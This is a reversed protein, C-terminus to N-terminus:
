KEELVKYLNKEEYAIRKALIDVLEKFKDIFEEDYMADELTYESLFDMLAIKTEEFTEVFEEILQKMNEDLSDELMSFKYFELDENMLHASTLENLADIDKSLENKKDQEYDRIITGALSVIERHEQKWRQALKQNHSLPKNQM